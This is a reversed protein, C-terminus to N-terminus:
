TMYPFGTSTAHSGVMDLPPLCADHRVNRSLLVHRLVPQARCINNECTASRHTYYLVTDYVARAKKKDTLTRSGATQQDVACGTQKGCEGSENEDRERQQQRDTAKETKTALGHCSMVHCSTVPVAAISLLTVLGEAGASPSISLLICTHHM